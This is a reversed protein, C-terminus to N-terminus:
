MKFVSKPNLYHDVAELAQRAAYHRLGFMPEGYDEMGIKLITNMDGSDSTEFAKADLSTIVINFSRGDAKKLFRWNGDNQVVRLFGQEGMEETVLREEKAVLM